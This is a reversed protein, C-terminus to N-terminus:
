KISGVFLNKNVNVRYYKSELFYFYFLILARHNFWSTHNLSKEFYYLILRIFIHQGYYYLFSTESPDGFLM